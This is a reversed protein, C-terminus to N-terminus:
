LIFQFIKYLLLYKLLFFKFDLILRKKNLWINFVVFKFINKNYNNSKIIPDLVVM